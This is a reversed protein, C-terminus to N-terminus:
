MGVLNAQANSREAVEILKRYVLTVLKDPQPDSAWLKALFIHVLKVPGDQIEIKLGPLKVLMERCIRAVGKIQSGIIDQTEQSYYVTLLDDVRQAYFPDPAALFEICDGDPDYITTPVFPPADHALKLVRQAFQDNSLATM